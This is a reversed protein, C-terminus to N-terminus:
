PLAFAMITGAPHQQDGGVSLAIYQKGDRMYTCPTSSGMGPLVTEWLLKGTDKDFARLKRDKGGSIFVLGGATVIPGPSGTLGTPQGDKKYLISDNGVPIKWLYEGSGLNVANLEGWPPKIAPYNGSGKFPAYAL